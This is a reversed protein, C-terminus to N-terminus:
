FIAFIILIIIQTGLCLQTGLIISYNVMKLKKIAFSTGISFTYKEEWEM